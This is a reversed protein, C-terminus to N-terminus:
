HFMSEGVIDNNISLINIAKPNVNSITGDNDVVIIGEEIDQILRSISIQKKM